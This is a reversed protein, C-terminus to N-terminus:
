FCECSLILSNNVSLWQVSVNEQTLVKLSNQSNKLSMKHIKMTKKVFLHYDIFYDSDLSNFTQYEVKQFHKSNDEHIWTWFSFFFSDVITQWGFLAIGDNECM